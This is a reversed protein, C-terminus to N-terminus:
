TIKQLNALCATWGEQHHDRFSEEIFECHNLELKTTNEDIAKLNVTVLTTNPSNEWRWSFVIKKDIILEKYEGGVIHQEGDEDEMVIRYKGGVKVETTAEPVKMNGPAFWTKIMDVKTWADFLRSAPVNFIQEMDLKFM